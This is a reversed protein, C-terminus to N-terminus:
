VTVIFDKRHDSLFVGNRYEKVLVCVIYKGAAPAIGSIFGTSTNMVGLPGLPQFGSYPAAYPVSGYTPPAPNNFGADAAAGGNFADTTSYVLSDGDVDTASFDLLFKNAQCIVSIGTQYRPSNNIGTPLNQTGPISGIYTSGVGPANGINTINAVRCCTQYTITYGTANNPLETDFEYSGYSYNFVPPNSLCPPSTVIGIPEDSNRSVTRIGGVLSNNTNDFIALAVSLPMGACPPPCNNDRFLRLTIKYVKSQTNSGQGLYTYIVEGGTIHAAFVPLFGVVLFITSLLKRM